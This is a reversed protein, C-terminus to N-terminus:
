IEKIDTLIWDYAKLDYTGRCYPCVGTNNIDLSAGCNQCKKIIGSEKADKYKKFILLYEKEVRRDNIGDIYKNTDKDVRYDMYRSTLNVEIVYRENDEYINKISSKKVNLEDYMQRQNKRNLNNLKEEYYKYLDYDLKHKVRPLNDTMIASLLMIFTNDVKAIFGSETFEKDKSKLEDITM